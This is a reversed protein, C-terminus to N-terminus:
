RNGMGRFSDLFGAYQPHKENEEIQITTVM